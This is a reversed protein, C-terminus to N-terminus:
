AMVLIIKALYQVLALFVFFLLIGILWKPSM